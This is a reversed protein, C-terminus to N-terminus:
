SGEVANLAGVIRQVEFRLNGHAKELTKVAKGRRDWVVKHANVEAADIEELKTIQANVADFLQAARPSTMFEYLQQTKEERAENSVRLTHFQVIQERMIEAVALVRAPCAVIVHDHVHLQKSGAPFKNTSLM